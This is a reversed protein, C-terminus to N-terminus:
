FCISVSWNSGLFDNAWELLGFLIIGEWPVLCEFVRKEELTWWRSSSEETGWLKSGCLDVFGLTVSERLGYQFLM